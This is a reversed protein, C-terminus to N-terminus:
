RISKFYKLYKQAIEPSEIFIINERNSNLGAKTPNLSGTIVIKEDIIFFKHHFPFFYNKDQKVDIGSLKFKPYQSYRGIQDYEMIGQVSVGESAKKILIEAIDPHTVTFQAFYISTKAEKLIKCLRKLIANGEEPSFYVEIETEEDIIVGSSHKKDKSGTKAEWLKQFERLYIGALEKSEIILADNNAYVAHPSPNYSGTWVLKEDIVCFKHHMLGKTITDKKVLGFNKLQPYFSDEEFIRGEDMVIQIQIGRIHAKILSSAVKKNNVSYFCGKVSQASNDIYESLKDNLDAPPSFLIEVRQEQCFCSSVSLFILLIFLFNRKSRM